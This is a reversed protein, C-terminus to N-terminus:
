GVKMVDQQKGLERRVLALAEERTTLEGSAQAERVLALLKGVSPGPTLGFTNTLDHGDVLKLPLVKAQQKAHETLIHDTLRCNGRWEKMNVLPGRSALYDALALFLIDIGADKTDRFYRYIARQTPLGENAMQAPRLHHRVLREVLSIEQRSFRLRSMVAEVMAAGQKAHGLFHARGSDDLSKTRPKAIDHLLGGLKLLAKRNGGKSVEQAFHQAMSDSWLVSDLMDESGYEWDTEKLLFGLAAVTEVSHDFVDWFHVTPQQIGKSEALEPILALLLGLRDLYRLYYATRPLSLVRLFEERIREGPIKVMSQSCHRILRETGPEITFDLEAALRVGRLLRAADAEFIQDSVARVIKNRLDEEGSFPDILKVQPQKEEGVGAGTAMVLQSLEVAMANITFDRRALDAEINQSFSSFDLHWEPECSEQDQRSGEPLRDSIVVVRAISNVDDLLVFKGKLARAVARAVAVADGNVAIDVDNTQRGLLSDRIFGGVIYSQYGKQILLHSVEAISTLDIEESFPM